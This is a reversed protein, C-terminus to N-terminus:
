LRVPLELYNEYVHRQHARLRRSIAGLIRENRCTFATRISPKAAMDEPPLPILLNAFTAWYIDIATLTEGMLYPHSEIRSSLMTLVDIVRHEAAEAAAADFGYRPALYRAVRPSFAGEGEGHKLAKDIMLLRYAWGLGM